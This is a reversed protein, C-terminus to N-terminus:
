ALPTIDGHYIFSAKVPGVTEGQNNTKESNETLETTLFVAKISVTGEGLKFDEEANRRTSQTLIMTKKPVASMM